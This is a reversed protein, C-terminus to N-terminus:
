RRSRSSGAAVAAGVIGGDNGFAARVVPADVDLRARIEDFYISGGGGIVFLSPSFLRQLHRLYRDVREAWVEVALNERRIASFGVSRDVLEGDMTLHGLETNPTLVGDTFLSSGIGTGLTIAIVVGARQQEDLAAIEALGAADADNLVQVPRQLEDQFLAVADTGIWATSVNAASRAVGGVVITPLCIGVTADADDAIESLIGRVAAAIALPEGGLPTATERRRLVTSTEADVAGAKIGTGGVDVGLLSGTM